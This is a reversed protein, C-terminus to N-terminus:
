AILKAVLEAVVNQEQKVLDGISTEFKTEMDKKKEIADTVNQRLEAAKKRAEDSDISSFKSVSENLMTIAPDLLALAESKKNQITTRLCTFLTSTLQTLEAKAQNSFEAKAKIVEANASNKLNEARDTIANVEGHVSRLTFQPLGLIIEQTKMTVEPIDIKMSTRDIKFEPVGMVIKQEQMFFEPVSVIIDKWRVTFGDIEPYQGVKKNVMRTSPTHFIMEQNKMTVQPVDFSWEQTVMKFEPLDFKISVDKWGVDFDLDLAGGVPGPNPSDDSLDQSEKQYKDSIIKMKDTLDVGLARAKSELNSQYQGCPNESDPM